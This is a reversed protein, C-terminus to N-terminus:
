QETQETEKVPIRMGYFSRIVFILAIVFFVAGFYPAVERFNENIAIEM